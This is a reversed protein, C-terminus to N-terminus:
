LPPMNVVNRFYKFPVHIVTSMACGTTISMIHRESSSYSTDNTNISEGKLLLNKIINMQIYLFAINSRHIQISSDLFPIDDTFLYTPYICSLISQLSCDSSCVMSKGCM